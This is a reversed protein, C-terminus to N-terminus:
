RALARLGEAIEEITGAGAAAIGVVFEYVDDNTAHETAVGNLELFVATSLWGLRKNGDILPHNKVVSQLLAAAKAWIDPYADEALEVAVIRSTERQERIWSLKSRRVWHVHPRRPLTDGRDLARLYHDTSPVAMCAGVADCTRLLTGLNAEYAVWLPAVILQDWCGHQRRRRQERLDTRRTKDGPTM